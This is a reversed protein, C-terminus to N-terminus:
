PDVMNLPNIDSSPNASPKNSGAHMPCESPYDQSFINM